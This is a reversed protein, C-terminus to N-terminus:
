YLFAQESQAARAKEILGNLEDSNKYLRKGQWYLKAKKDKKNEIIQAAEAKSLACVKRQRVVSKFYLAASFSLFNSCFVGDITFSCEADEVYEPQNKDHPSTRKVKVTLILIPVGIVFVAAVPLVISLALYTPYRKMDIETICRSDRIYLKIKKNLCEEGYAECKERSSLNLNAQVEAHYNQGNEDIYRCYLHCTYGGVHGRGSGSSYRVRYDYVTGYVEEGGRFYGISAANSAIVIGILILVAGMASFVAIVAANKKKM